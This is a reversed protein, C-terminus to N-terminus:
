SQPLVPQGRQSNCPPDFVWMHFMSFWDWALAPPHSWLLSYGHPYGMSSHPLVHLGMLCPAQAPSPQSAPSTVRHPFCEPLLRSRFSQVRHFPDISSCNIFLQLRPIAYMNPPKHLVTEWSLLGMSSCSLLTFHAWSLSCSAASLVHPSSVSARM